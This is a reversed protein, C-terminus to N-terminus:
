PGLTRSRIGDGAGHRDRRHAGRQHERRRRPGDADAPPRAGTPGAGRVPLPRHDAVFTRGGDQACRTRSSAPPLPRGKAQARSAESSDQSSRKWNERRDRVTTTAKRDRDEDEGIFATSSAAELTGGEGEGKKRKKKQEVNKKLHARLPSNGTFTDPSLPIDPKQAPAEAKPTGRLTPGKYTPPAAVNPLAPKAKTKPRRQQAQETDAITGRPKMERISSSNRVGGPPVYEEPRLAPSPRPSEPASRRRNRPLRGRAVYLVKPRLPLGRLPLLRRNSRPRPVQRRRKRSVKKSLRLRKRRLRRSKSNSLRSPKSWPRRGNAPSRRARCSRNSAASKEAWTARSERAFPTMQAEEPPAAAVTTPGSKKLHGLVLDREEPSISALPSNKVKIGASNCHEILDKSDIGLEKALAFLRIKLDM